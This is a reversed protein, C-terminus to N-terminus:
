NSHGHPKRRRRYRNKVTYLYAKTLCRNDISDTPYRDLKNKFTALLNILHNEQLNDEPWASDIIEETPRTKILSLRITRIRCQDQYHMQQRERCRQCANM